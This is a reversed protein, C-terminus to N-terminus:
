YIARHTWRQGDLVAAAQDILVLDVQPLSTAPLRPRLRLSWDDGGIKWASAGTRRVRDVEAPWRGLTKAVDTLPTLGRSGSERLAEGSVAVYREQAGAAEVRVDPVALEATSTLPVSGSVRLTTRGPANGPLSVIWSRAAAKKTNEDTKV